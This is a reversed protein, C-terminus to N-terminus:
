EDVFVKDREFGVDFFTRSVEMTEVCNPCGGYQYEIWVALFTNADVAVQRVLLKSRL